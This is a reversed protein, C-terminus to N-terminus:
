KQGVGEFQRFVKGLGEWKVDEDVVRAFEHKTGELALNGKAKEITAEFIVGGLEEDVRRELFIKQFMKQPTHSEWEPEEGVVILEKNIRQKKEKLHTTLFFRYPLRKLLLLLANYRRNRISWQFQDSLRVDPNIKLDEFRMVMECIKFFYGAGDLVTGAVGDMDEKIYKAASMMKAYTTVFDIEGGPLQEMPDLVTFNKKSHFREYIPRASGDVDFIVMQMGTDIEDQTMSDMCIGSKGIGDAGYFAAKISSGPSKSEKSKEFWKKLEKKAIVKDASASEPSGEIIKEKEEEKSAWPDGM